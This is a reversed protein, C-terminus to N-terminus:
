PIPPEDEEPPREWPLRDADPSNVISFVPRPPPSEAMADLEIPTPVSPTRRFLLVPPVVEVALKGESELWRRIRFYSARSAGKETKMLEVFRRAKDERMPYAPDTEIDQITTSIKDLGYTDLLIKRWNRNAKKDKDAHLYWRCDLPPLRSVHQGFWDHIDQDWFWRSVAQHIDANPPDFYLLISRSQLASEVTTKNAIICLPSTTLFTQPVNGLGRTTSGYDLRKEATTEGLASVLKAGIKSELLHEADDLIVAQGRHEYLDKYFQLPTLQGGKRYYVTATRTAAKISETKTLGPRGVIWIFPYIGSSFDCLYSELEAYARIHRAGRPAAPMRM